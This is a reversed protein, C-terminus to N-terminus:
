RWYERVPIGYDNAAHVLLYAGLAAVLGVLALTVLFGPDLFVRFDRKLSSDNPETM